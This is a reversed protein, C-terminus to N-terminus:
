AKSEKVFLGTPSTDYIRFDVDTIDKNFRIQGSRGSGGILQLEATAGKCQLYSLIQMLVYCQDIVLLECFKKKGEDIIKKVNRFPSLVQYFDKGLQAALLDYKEINSQRTIVLKRVGENNTKMVFEESETKQKVTKNMDLLKKVAKFYEDTKNDTFLQSANYALIRADYRSGGAIYFPTGNYRILQKTKIQPVIIKPSDIYESFYNIVANKDNKAKYEILVPVAEITKKLNCKKDLSGVVAFYATSLSKYGGYKEFDAIVGEGKRGVSIGADGKKYVTQNYFGGKGVTAMRTVAMTHKGYTNKVSTISLDSDKVWAGERNRLFLNKLNRRRWEDEQKRMTNIYSPFCVDYVNGVVVNLYADRAHHLDNTERCKFLSFKDRFDSVNGAKSYVIKTNPYKRQLLEAVAKATQDTIVKQRNIFYNYDDDNLPEVRTLRDFKTKSMLGANKLFGWLPRQDTFGQPLPYDDDKTANKERKVLVKNDLSDDKIYTRPLIHDVDYASNLLSLDIREGTYACRGLQCFYLFLKESRLKMDDYTENGSLADIVDKYDEANKMAKYKKLLEDKRSFTRVGKKKPDNERTVEVFIKNPVRGLVSVYEDAMKIAQWVGRKVAPSVYLENVDDFNVASDTEGNEEALTEALNFRVDFLLENLNLNTNELVDLVGGVYEGTAKDAIALGTLFRKSLRGFEKFSLGKLVKINSKIQPIKGYNELILQEVLKKDENLTHWLIINECVSDSKELDSDVFEKGFLECFTIYSSMNAKFEGDKGTLETQGREKESIIGERVLLDKIGKDTVKKKTLFLNNYIKNKLEVSIPKDNVRLKNLQNLVDFKQYIISRKPLVDEGRLYTCKNTMRRMFERNSAAKNIVEDFNWPTIKENEKGINRVAWHGSAVGNKDKITGAYSLPGVYYPIKYLFLKEIKEAIEKTESMRKQMNEVIKNLEAQNLQRPMLGKDAHLIKPLFSKSEISALMEKLIKGQENETECLKGFNEILFKKTYAFFEEEKCKGVKKKDGGKRTYGVYNVYNNKEETSKFFKYYIENTGNEKIFDKLKKLDAKHKNYLAVMAESLPAACGFYGDIIKSFKAYNVIKRMAVLVAVEDDGFEAKKVEFDDYSIEDLSFNKQEEYEDGFLKKPSFKGGCLATIIEKFRPAIDAGFSKEGFLENLAKKKDNLGSKSILIRKAEAVKEPAFYMHEEGFFDIAAANLEAFLASADGLDNLSGDYLFNGRYKIIHHLALYYFRLDLDDATGDALAKRLHYITSYEKFFNKDKFNDDAFLSNKDRRLLEDKDGPFFASNNLRIFFNKDTIYPAFLEQLWKIRQKRRELRRRATRFTRREKATKAEDFLRVSWLDQGKARLLKYNEDTCAMGVSNTGVDIGLYFKEM